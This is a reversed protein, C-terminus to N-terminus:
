QCYQTCVKGVLDDFDSDGEPEAVQVNYYQLKETTYRGISFAKRGEGFIQKVYGTSKGKLLVDVELASTFIIGFCNPDKFKEDTFGAAPTVEYANVSLFKVGGAKLRDDLSKNALNSRFLLIKQRRAKDWLLDGLGNSDRESATFATGGNSEVAKATAPGICYFTKVPEGLKPQIKSFYVDAGHSSTLVVAEPGFTTIQKITDEPFEKDHIETLSLNVINFCCSGGRKKSVKEEPRTTLIFKGGEAGSKGGSVTDSGERSRERLRQFWGGQKKKEESM